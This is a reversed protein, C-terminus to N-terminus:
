VNRKLCVSNRLSRERSRRRRRSRLLHFQKLLLLRCRRLNTSELFVWFTPAVLFSFLWLRYFDGINKINWGNM